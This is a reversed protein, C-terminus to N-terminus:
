PKSRLNMFCNKSINKKSEFLAKFRVDSKEAKRIVLTEFGQKKTIPSADHTSINHTVQILFIMKNKADVFIAHFLDYNESDPIYLIGSFVSSNPNPTTTPESSLHNNIQAFTDRSISTFESTLEFKFTIQTSSKNGSRSHHHFKWGVRREEFERFMVFCYKELIDGKSTAKYNLNKLSESFDLEEIIIRVANDIKTRYRAEVISQYIPHNFCLTYYDRVDRFPKFSCLNQDIEDMNIDRRAIKLYSYALWNIWKDQISPVDREFDQACERVENTRATIYSAVLGNINQKDIEYSKECIISLEYPINKTTEQIIEIANIMFNAKDQENRINDLLDPSKVNWFDPNMNTQIFNRSQDITLGPNSINNGIM